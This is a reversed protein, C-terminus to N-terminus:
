RSDERLYDEIKFSDERLYDEIKFRAVATCALSYWIELYDVMGALCLLASASLSHSSSGSAM